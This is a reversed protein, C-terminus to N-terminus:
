GITNVLIAGYGNGAGWRAVAEAPSFFRITEINSANIEMLTSTGGLRHGDLYIKMEDISIPECVPIGPACSNDAVLSPRRSTLWRPRLLRVLDYATNAAAEAIEGHTIMMRPNPRVIPGATGGTGLFPYTFGAALGISGGVMAWDQRSRGIDGDDWDGSAVQSAFYGVGAGLAAGGVANWLRSQWSHGDGSALDAPAAPISGSSQASLTGGDVGTALLTAVILGSVVRTM